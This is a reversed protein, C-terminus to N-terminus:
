KKIEKYFEQLRKRLHLVAYRKRSILTNVPEGLLESMDKFSQDEFEHMMFVEKQEAPLEDLAEQVAEWLLNKFYEDDPSNGLDPLIDELFLGENDKVTDNYDTFTEPKKKRYLDTIKNRAVRFLWSTIQDITDISGSAQTLQFFVDQLIDEADEKAKVRKRIFNFLKSREERVTQEIKDKQTQTMYIPISEM